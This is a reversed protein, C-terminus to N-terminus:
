VNQVGFKMYNKIKGAIRYHRNEPSLIEIAILQPRTFVREIPIERSFVSLDPIRVKTVDVCTRQEQIARIAWEKEHIYLWFLVARQIMSHDFEGVNREELEGDVYEM